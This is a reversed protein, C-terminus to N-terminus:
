RAGRRAGAHISCFVHKRYYLRPDNQHNEGDDQSM